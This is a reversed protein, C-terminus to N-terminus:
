RSVRGHRTSSATLRASETFHARPCLCLVRNLGIGDQAPVSLEDRLFPVVGFASAHSPGSRRNYAEAFDPKLQLATPPLRDRRRTERSGEVDRGLQQARGCLRAEIGGYDVAAAAPSKEPRTESQEPLNAALWTAELGQFREAYDAASPIEGARLRCEADILILERLLVQYEPTEKDALFDELRPWGPGAKPGPTYVFNGFADVERSRFSTQWTTTSRWDSNKGAADVLIRRM